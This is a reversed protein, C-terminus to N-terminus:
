AFLLSLITSVTDTLASSGFLNVTDIAANTVTTGLYDDIWFVSLGMDAAIPDGIANVLNGAELQDVFLSVDYEPLTTILSLGIDAIPLLVAYDNALVSSVTDVTDTGVSPDPLSTLSDLSPMSLTVPNPGSGTLDGIFNQIGQEAGSVLLGPLQEFASLPPLLGFPTPVNAPGTSWGYLPDGYGLNVLYTLDPQLLDALPNGVVPVSRLPDLLPLNETPIMYYTTLTPGATPLEVATAVQEPTLGPVGPQLYPVYRLHVYPLGAAANLDSLLDIPYRPYDALGDYEQNYITTSYLDAPTPGSSFGEGLFPNDLGLFREVIGGNPSNPDGMFVFSLQEPSPANPMSALQEMELTAITASQSYGFVTVNDGNALDSLIADNEITEGEAVSTDFPLSKVGTIPYLGEPTFLPEYTAGPFTPQGEFLPTSPLFLKEVNDLYATTPIPMGSGGPVIVVDPDAATDLLPAGYAFAPNMMSTLALLGAGGGAMLGLGQWRLNRRSM